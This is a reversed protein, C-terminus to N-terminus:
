SLINKIRELKTLTNGGAHYVYNIIGDEFYRHYSYPLIKVNNLIVPEPIDSTERNFINEGGPLSYIPQLVEDLRSQEHFHGFRCNNYGDPNNWIFNLTEIAWESNKWIMFGTSTNTWVNRTTQDAELKPIILDIEEEIFEEIKIDKNIFVADADIWVVYDFLPLTKLLVDIKIWTPHWDLYDSDKVIRKVYSYGHKNAYELHNTASLDGYDCKGYNNWRINDTYSSLVCIDM